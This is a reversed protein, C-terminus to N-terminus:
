GEFRPISRTKPKEAGCFLEKCIKGRQSQKRYFM